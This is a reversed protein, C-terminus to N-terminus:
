KVCEVALTFKPDHAKDTYPVEKVERFGHKELLKKLHVFDWVNKHLDYKTPIYEHYAGYLNQQVMEWNASKKVKGWDPVVIYLEGGDTM